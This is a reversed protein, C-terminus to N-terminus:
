KGAAARKLGPNMGLSLLNAFLRYAGPVGEPLQRYLALATYVYYGKGVRAFLLGGREPDQGPDHTELLAQYEPAWGRAFGHGREAVWGSFDARTIHNPWLFVPSAPALLTVPDAEEVVNMDSSGPVNIAYPAEADGYRATNYQVIVVGGEKAYDLLPKSGAGALEPHAAYARVGLVVADYESLKAATVDAISLIAPTVGLDPLYAAVDDGTGPLYAVRLTPAVHVDAATLHFTSPTYMNTGQIGTYGVTRYGERYTRGNLEAVVILPYPRYPIPDVAHVEAFQHSYRGAPPRTPLPQNALPPLTYSWTAPVELRLEPAAEPDATMASYGLPFRLRDLPIVGAATPLAISVPPVVVVPEGPRPGNPLVFAEKPGAPYAVAAAVEIEVGHDDLTARVTAPPPTAPADRLAPVAIDYYAQEINPRSFYPRTAPLAHVLNVELRAETALGHMATAERRAINEKAAGAGSARLELTKVVIGDGAGTQVKVDVDVHTATTLLPQGPAVGALTADLSIGHALVLADNCQVRKIRLEHLLNYSQEASLDNVRENELERIFGDLARLAERLPPATLEPKAPDFLRQAEAFKQDISQLAPRFKDAVEPALDAIGALSV